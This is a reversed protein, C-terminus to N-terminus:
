GYRNQFFPKNACLNDCVLVEYFMTAFQRGPFRAAPAKLALVVHDCVAVDNVKSEIDLGM